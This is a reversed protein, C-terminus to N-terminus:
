AINLTVRRMIANLRAELERPNFPKVMFDDAGSELCKIKTDSNDVGSLIILPINGFIGSSKIEAIFDYGNLVPMNIDAIIFDPFNSQYLWLLAEQGNDCTVVEHRAKFYHKLIKQIASEDDIVLIKLRTPNTNQSNTMLLKSKLQPNLSM